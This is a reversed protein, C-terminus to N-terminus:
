DARGHHEPRRRDYIRLQQQNLRVREAFEAAIGPAFSPGFAPSEINGQHAQGGPADSRSHTM